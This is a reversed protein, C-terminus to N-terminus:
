GVYLGGDFVPPVAPNSRLAAWTQGNLVKVWPSRGAGTAVVVEPKADGTLDKAAVRVGSLSTDDTWAMTVGSRYVGSWAKVEADGGPGAGTVVEAKGDGDLDAAAVNVGGRFSPDYAFYSYLVKGNAGSHVVVRPGGGVGSGTVIDAKGDGNVDGVAVSIGGRFGHEYAYFSHFPYPEVAAHADGGPCIVTGSFVQVHPGGGEGAGTVLDARGDGDVDGAAVMVGGTFGDHYALFSKALTLTKGDYVEIVSQGGPGAAVIVEAVGDGSLDATVVRAGGTFDPTFPTIVGLLANTPGDYVNVQAARGEGTGVAYRPRAQQVLPTGVPAGPDMLDVTSVAAAPVDRLELREVALQTRHRDM